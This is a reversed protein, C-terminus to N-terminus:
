GHLMKAASTPQGLHPDAPTTSQTPSFGGRVASQPGSQTTSTMAVGFRPITASLDPQGKKWVAADGERAGARRRRHPIRVACVRQMLDDLVARVPSRHKRQGWARSRLCFKRAMPTCASSSFCRSRPENQPRAARAGSPPRPGAQPIATDNIM